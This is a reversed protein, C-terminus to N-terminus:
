SIWLCCKVQDGSLTEGDCSIIVDVDERSKKANLEGVGFQKELLKREIGNLFRRKSRSKKSM